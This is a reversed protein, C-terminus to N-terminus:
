EEIEESDEKPPLEENGSGGRRMHNITREYENIWSNIEDIWKSVNDSPTILATANVIDAVQLYIKETNKRQERTNITIKKAEGEVRVHMAADFEDNAVAIQNILNELGIEGISPWIDNRQVAILLKRTEGTEKNKEYSAIGDFRKIEDYIIEAAHKENEDPSKLFEKVLRFLRKLYQDRIKDKENIERTNILRPNKNGALQQREISEQYQFLLQEISQSFHGSALLVNLVLSHFEVSASELLKTLHFKTIKKM